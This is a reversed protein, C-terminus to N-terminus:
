PHICLLTASHPLGLAHSEEGSTVTGIKLGLRTAMTEVHLTNMHGLGYKDFSPLPIRRDHNMVANSVFVDGIAAGQVLHILHRDTQFM